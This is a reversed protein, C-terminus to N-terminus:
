ESNVAKKGIFVLSVVLLVVNVALSALYSFFFVIGFADRRLPYEYHDAQYIFDKGLAVVIGNLFGGQEEIVGANGESGYDTVEYSVLRFRYIGLPTESIYGIFFPFEISLWSNTAALLLTIGILIIKFKRNTTKWFM